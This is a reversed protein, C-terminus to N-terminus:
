ERDPEEDDIKGGKFPVFGNGRVAAAPSIILFAYPDIEQIYAKLAVSEKKPLAVRIMVKEEHTYGGQSTILTSGRSLEKHIFQLIEDKKECIIDCVVYNGTSVFVVQIVFACLAAGIIGILGRIFWNPNGADQSFCVMGVIVITADLILTAFGEKIPTFKACISALVDLGGTSGGGIYTLAVGLGVLSGGFIGAVFTVLLTENSATELAKQILIGAGCRYLISFFTPYAITALLTKLCYKKGLFFFSLVLMTLELGWTVLDVVQFSDGVFYQVIVGISSCGGMVLDCPVTFFADGCALVLSGLLIFVVNIFIQVKKSRGMAAM